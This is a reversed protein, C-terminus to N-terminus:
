SAEVYYRQYFCIKSTCILLMKRWGNIEASRHVPLCCWPSSALGLSSNKLFLIILVKTIWYKWTIDCFLDTPCSQYCLYQCLSKFVFLGTLFTFKAVISKTKLQRNQYDKDRWSDKAFHDIVVVHIVSRQTAYLTKILLLCFFFLHFLARQQHHFLFMVDVKWDHWPILILCWVCQWWFECCEKNVAKYSFVSLSGKRVFFGYRLQISGIWSIECTFALLPM